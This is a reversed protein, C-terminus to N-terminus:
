FGVVRRFESPSMGLSARLYPNAQRESGLSAGKEASYNHGPLVWTQEPLAGLRRLSAYMKEPDGGPLDTRGCGRVFLTDGTLLRGRALFCQSGETHGPTHLFEIELGGVKLRHGGEVPRVSDGLDKLAFADAKHVYVPVDSDALIPAIARTHDYHHHTVLIASLVLKRSAIEGLLRPADWGPDVLACQGAEPDALLYAYNAMPGVEIQEFLPEAGASM